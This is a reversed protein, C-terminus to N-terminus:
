VERNTPLTLHTYSVTRCCNGIRGSLRRRTAPGTAPNFLLVLATVALLLLTRRGAHEERRLRRKAAQLEVIAEKLNAKADKLGQRLEEDSAADANADM